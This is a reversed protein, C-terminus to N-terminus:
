YGRFGLKPRGGWRWHYIGPATSCIVLVCIEWGLNPVVESRLASTKALMNIQEYQAEQM